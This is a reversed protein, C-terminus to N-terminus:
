IGFRTKRKILWTYRYCKQPDTAQQIFLRRKLANLDGDCFCEKNDDEFLLSDDKDSVAPQQEPGIIVPEINESSNGQEIYCEESIVVSEDDKDHKATSCISIDSKDSETSKIRKRKRCPLVDSRERPAPRKKTNQIEYGKLYITPDPCDKSRYGSVFTTSFNRGNVKIRRTLRHTFDFYASM